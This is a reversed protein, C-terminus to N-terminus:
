ICCQTHYRRLPDLEEPKSKLVSVVDALEGSQGVGGDKKLIQLKLRHVETELDSKSSELDAIANECMKCMIELKAKETQLVSLEKADAAQTAPM